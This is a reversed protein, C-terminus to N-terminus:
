QQKWHVVFRVFRVQNSVPAMELVLGHDNWWNQLSQSERSAGTGRRRVQVAGARAVRSQFWAAAESLGTVITAYLRRGRLRAQESSRAQGCGAVVCRMFIQNAVCEISATSDGEIINWSTRELCVFAFGRGCV